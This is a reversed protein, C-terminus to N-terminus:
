TLRVDIINGSKITLVVADNKKGEKLKPVLTPPISESKGEYSVFCASAMISTIHGVVENSTHVTPKGINLKIANSLKILMDRVSDFTNHKFFKHLFTTGDKEAQIVMCRHEGENRVNKLTSLNIKIFKDEPFLVNCVANIKHAVAIDGVNKELGTKHFSFDKNTESNVEIETSKEIVALLENVNPYTVYFYYNLLNEIQYFANVCFLYFRRHEDQRLNIASNEMRLNDIILQDRVRQNKVFDYTISNQARIELAERIASVDDAINKSVFSTSSPTTGFMKKLEEAFESNQLSLTKIKQLTLKLKDDM